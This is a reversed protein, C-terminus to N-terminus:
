FFYIKYKQKKKISPRKKFKKKIIFFFYKEKYKDVFNKGIFGSAGTLLITKM